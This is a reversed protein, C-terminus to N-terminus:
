EAVEVLTVKPSDSVPTKGVIGDVFVDANFKRGKAKAVLEAQRIAEDKWKPSRKGGNTHVVRLAGDEFGEGGEEVSHALLQMGATKLVGDIIKKAAQVRQMKQLLTQPMKLKQSVGILADRLGTAVEEADVCITDVSELNKVQTDEAVRVRTAKKKTGNKKKTATMGM